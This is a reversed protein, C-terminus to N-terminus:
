IWKSASAVHMQTDAAPPSSGLTGTTRAGNVDGIEWYFPAVAQCAAHNSATLTAATRREEDTPAPAADVAEAADPAESADGGGGDAASTDSRSADPETALDGVGGDGVQPTGTSSCGALLVLIGLALPTHTM